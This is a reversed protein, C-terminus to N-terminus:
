FIMFKEYVRFSMPRKGENLSGGKRLNDNAVTWKMGSM